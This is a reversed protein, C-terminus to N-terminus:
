FRMSAPSLINKYGRVLTEGATYLLLVECRNSKYLFFYRGKIHLFGIYRWRMDVRCSM